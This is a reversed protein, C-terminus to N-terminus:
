AAGIRTINSCLTLATRLGAGTTMLMQPLLLWELTWAAGSREQEHVLAQHMGGVLTANYRALAVLIEAGVPNSKHPMASSTGGGEVAIEGFRNQAMLAVDAGLKGLSGSVLSLWSGLEALTDRQNHWSRPPLGLGLKQALQAAVAPGKDGLKDLTGAAGGFQLVLLRPLLADLREIHRPLPSRWAAIRDGARIPLADQMRTHAMLENGGFRGDLEALLHALTELRAKFDILVPRLQLVLATDIVDQSTAGFHLHQAHPPGLLDRLQRVLEPVVVGDRATATAIAADDPHFDPLHEAIFEASEAPIVGEAGEALALAVEFLLMHRLAADPTLERAVVDDGLLRGLWPHEFPSASM